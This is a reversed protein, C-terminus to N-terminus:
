RRACAHPPAAQLGPFGHTVVLVCPWSLHAHTQDSERYSESDADSKSGDRDRRLRRVSNIPDAHELPCRRRRIGGIEVGKTVPEPSQAVDLALIEDDLVSRGIAAVISERVERGLQSLVLHVQDQCSSRRRRERGLM